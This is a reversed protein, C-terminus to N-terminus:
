PKPSLHLNPDETFNRGEIIHDIRLKQLKTQAGYVLTCDTASAPDSNNLRETLRAEVDQRVGGFALFSIYIITLLQGM